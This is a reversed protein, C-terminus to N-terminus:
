CLLHHPNKSWKMVSVKNRTFATKVSYQPTTDTHKICLAGEGKPSVQSRCKDKTEIIGVRATEKETCWCHFLFSTSTPFDDKFCTIIAEPPIHCKDRPDSLILRDTLWWMVWDVGAGGSHTNILLSDCKVFFYKTCLLVTDRLDNDQVSCPYRLAKINNSLHCKKCRKEPLTTKNFWWRPIYRDVSTKRSMYTILLTVLLRYCLRLIVIYFFHLRIVKKTQSRM